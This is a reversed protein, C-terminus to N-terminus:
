PLAEVTVSIFGVVPPAAPTATDRVEVRYTINAVPAHSFSSSTSLLAGSGHNFWAFTYSGSGGTPLVFLNVTEGQCINTSSAQVAVIGLPGGSVAVAVQDTNQCGTVLDTVTLTFLQSTTLPVTPTSPNTPNVVLAAPAWSYSYLTTNVSLANLTASTGGPIAMDPGADAPPTPNVRVTAQAEAFCGEPTTYRYTVTFNGIGSLGTDFLGNSVFPGSYEGGPPTASTLPVQGSGACLNINPFNVVPAQNVRLFQTASAICTASPGQHVYTIEHLGAGIQAPDIFFSEVGNVFYKGGAPSGGTLYILGASTCVDTFPSLTVNPTFSAQSISASFNATTSATRCFTITHPGPGELCIVLPQNEIALGYNLCNVYYNIQGWTGGQRSLNIIVANRSPHLTVTYSFCNSGPSANCCLGAPSFFSSNIFTATPSASLDVTFVPTVPSCNQATVQVPKLLSFLLCLPFLWVLRVSRFPLVMKKSMSQNM